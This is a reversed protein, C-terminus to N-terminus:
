NIIRAIQNIEVEQETGDDMKKVRALGTARESEGLVVAYRAGIKGAYRMQAKVSREVLDTEAKLELARLDNTLKYALLYLEKGQPAIYIDPPNDGKLAIGTAEAVMILRELGMGFGVAPTSKGGVEAVLNDYRGGGCVTGQAGIASTIFEFVTGTYYDLGRVIGSDEAFSVDVATLTDKLKAHHEECNACLHELTKPADKNIKICTAEKCDLLRLPNKYLREKCLPCLSDIKSEYYAVLTQNYHPRCESCGINNIRLSLGTIGIKDFVAKAILIAEADALPSASGYIEVGFQHHERLRGAQPREYRFVPTLYYMKVPQASESLGAEIYARAVGATGEPKLTISRGGKDIFTYMEKNVIDTTEGVGRLFLETHEFTPTRIEKLGFVAAVARIRDEIFHWKGSEAPLVDKTGKPINIM